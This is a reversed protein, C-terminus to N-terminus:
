PKAPKKVPGRPKKVGTSKILAKKLINGYVKVTIMPQIDSDTKLYILDNYHGPTKKLNEVTLTYSSTKKKMTEKLEFNINEGYKSSVDLIKFPYEEEPIISVSTKSFTEQQGSFRVTTPSITVFKKVKGYVTLM